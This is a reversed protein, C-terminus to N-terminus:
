RTAALELLDLLEDVTDANPPDHHERLAQVLERARALAGRGSYLLSDVDVLSDDVVPVPESLPQDELRTIGAISDELLAHLERGTPTAYRPPAGLEEDISDDPPRTTAVPARPPASALAAVPVAPTVTRTEAVFSTTPQADYVFEDISPLAEAPTAHTGLTGSLRPETISLGVPERRTDSGIGTAVQADVGRGRALEQVRKALADARTAPNALLASVEDIAGLVLADLRSAADHSAAVFDAVSREGFSDALNRLGRLASRLARGVREREGTDRVSRGESVLARLHEAQSVVEMRFRVAPSTPPTASRSVVHPGEDQYFLSEIPVVRDAGETADGFADSALAFRELEPASAPITGGAGVDRAVRRLAEVGARLVELAERAGATAAQELPRAAREVGELVMALAPHDRLSALGRMARVRRVASLLAAPARSGAAPPDAAVAELAGAIEVAETSLWAGGSAGAAATAPIAGTPTRSSGAYQALEAVRTQVRRDEAAGWTRVARILLKLDDIAAVVAGSLGPGWTLSGERLGRGIREVSGALEAMGGLKAMTASGRLARAHRAFADADPGSDGAAAVLGDLREVYDTAELIFFDLLGASSIM